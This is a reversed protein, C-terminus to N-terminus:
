KKIKVRPRVPTTPNHWGCHPKETSKFLPNVRHHQFKLHSNMSEEDCGDFITDEQLALEHKRTLTYHFRPFSNMFAVGEM